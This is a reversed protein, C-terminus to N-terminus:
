LPLYIIHIQEQIHYPAETHGQGVTDGSNGAPGNRKDQSEIIFEDAGQIYEGVAVQLQLLFGDPEKAFQAQAPDDTSTMALRNVVWM